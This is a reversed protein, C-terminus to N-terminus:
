QDPDAKPQFVWGAVKEEKGSAVLTRGIVACSEM